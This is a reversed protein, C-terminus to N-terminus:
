AKLSLVGFDSHSPSLIAFHLCCRSRRRHVARQYFALRLSIQITELISACAHICEAAFSDYRCYTGHSCTLQVVLFLLFAIFWLRPDIFSLKLMPLYHGLTSMTRQVFSMQRVYQCKSVCRKRNDKKRGSGTGSRSSYGTDSEIDMGDSEISGSGSSYGWDRRRREEPPTLGSSLAGTSLHKKKKQSSRNNHSDSQETFLVSPDRYYTLFRNCEKLVAHLLRAAAHADGDTFLAYETSTM